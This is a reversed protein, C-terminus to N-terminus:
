NFKDKIYKYIEMDEFEKQSILDPEINSNGQKSNINEIINKSFNLKINPKEYWINNINDLLKDSHILKRTDFFNLDSM